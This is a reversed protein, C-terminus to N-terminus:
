KQNHLLNTYFLDILQDPLVAPAANNPVATPVAWGKVPAAVIGTIAPYQTGTILYAVIPPITYVDVGLDPYLEAISRAV